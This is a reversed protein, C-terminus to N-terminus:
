RSCAIGLVGIGLVHDHLGHGADVQLLQRLLTGVQEDVHHGVAGLEHAGRHRVQVEGAVREVHDAVAHADVAHVAGRAVALGDVAVVDEVIMGVELVHRLVVAALVGEVDLAAVHQVDVLVHQGDADGLAGLGIGDILQGM